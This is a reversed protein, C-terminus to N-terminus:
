SIIVRVVVFLVYLYMGVISALLGGVIVRATSELAQELKTPPARMRSVEGPALSQTLNLASAPGQPMLLLRVRILSRNWTRRVM